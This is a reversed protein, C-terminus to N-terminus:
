TINLSVYIGCSIQIANAVHYFPYVIALVVGFSIDISGAVIQAKQLYIKSQM